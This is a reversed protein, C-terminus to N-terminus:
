VNKIGEKVRCESCIEKKKGISPFDHYHQIIVRKTKNNRIFEYVRKCVPCFYLEDDKESYKRKGKFEYKASISENYFDPISISDVTKM